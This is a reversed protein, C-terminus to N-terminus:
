KELEVAAAVIGNVTEANIANKCVIGRVSASPTKPCYVDIEDSTFIGVAKTCLVAALGFLLSNGTVVLGSRGLLAGLRAITLHHMLPLKFRSLWEMESADPTEDAYLYVNNKVVPLLAKIVNEAQRAGFARYFYFADVGVPRSLDSIRHERFFHDVETSTREVVAGTRQVVDPAGLMEAMAFNRDTLYRREPSPNVHINIFPFEGAGAYGIRVPAGTRGALYLLPLDENGTLLCCVEATDKLSRNLVSFSASFLRKEELRYEVISVDEVMGALETCSAEICLTVEANGFFAKMAAINKLQHLVPLQGPPLIMLVRKVSAANLPFSFLPLHATQKKVTRALLKRGNSPGVLAFAFRKWSGTNKNHAM